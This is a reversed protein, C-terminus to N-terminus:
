RSEAPDRRSAFSSLRVHAVGEGALYREDLEDFAVDVDDGGFIVIRRAREDPGAELLTVSDITNGDTDALRQRSLCLQEGRVAIARQEVFALGLERFAQMNTIWTDPGAGSIRAGAGCTRSASTTRSFVASGSGTQREYPRSSATRADARSM